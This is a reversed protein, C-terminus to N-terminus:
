PSLSVESLLPQVEVTWSWFVKATHGALTVSISILANLRSSMRGWVAQVVGQGLCQEGCGGQGHSLLGADSSKWGGSVCCCQVGVPFLYKWTRESTDYSSRKWRSHLNDNFSWDTKWRSAQLLPKGEGDALTSKWSFLGNPETDCWCLIGRSGRNTVLTLSSEAKEARLM